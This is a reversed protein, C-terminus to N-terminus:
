DGAGYDPELPWGEIRFTMQLTGVRQAGSGDITVETDSLSAMRQPDALLATLVIREVAESDFDLVDELDDGGLRKLVVILQTSRTSVDQADLVKTERPTAVGFVPLESADITQAWASRQNFASFEASMMMAVRVTERFTARYHM